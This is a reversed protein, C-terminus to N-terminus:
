KRDEGLKLVRRALINRHIENTGSFITPARSEFFTDVPTLYNHESHLLAADAGAAEMSLESIRQFVESSWIKLASVETGVVGDVSVLEAFTRYLDQADLTDFEAQTRRDQWFPDSTQGTTALVVDLERLAKMARHPSGAWIREFGLLSRAVKWGEHPKGLILDTSVKVEDFFVECFDDDGSLNSIPRVTIGPTKIDILVFSIGYQKKPGNDSRVLLFIHSAHNASTTWIKQGNITITDGDIVGACRLSSLDSGANPESYGQCWIQEGASIAPLYTVKQKETGYAIIAPGLNRVGSDHLWPTGKDEMEEIYALHRNPSLGMGGYELPWGPAILGAEYLAKYWSMTVIPPQRRRVHRLDLLCNADIFDRLYARFKAEPMENWNTCATHEMM